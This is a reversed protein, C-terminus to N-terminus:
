ALAFHIFLNCINHTNRNVSDFIMSFSNKHPHLDAVASLGTINEDIKIMCLTFHDYLGFPDYGKQIISVITNKNFLTIVLQNNILQHNQFYKVTYYFFNAKLVIINLKSQNRFM